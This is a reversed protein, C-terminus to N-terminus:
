SREPLLPGAGDPVPTHAANMVLALTSYYGVTTILEITAAEGFQLIAAAWTSDSVRRDGLLEAVVRFGADQDAPLNPPPEGAAVAQVTSDAVGAAEALPRHHTWEFQQDFARAVLLVALEFVAPALASEYRLYSGVRQLRDMLEPARLLPVFPGILAGRPGAAITAVAARQREDLESDAPLPLRDVTV